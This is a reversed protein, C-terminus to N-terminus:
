ILNEQVLSFDVTGLYAVQLVYHILPPILSPFLICVKTKVTILNTVKYVCLFNKNFVDKTTCFVFM